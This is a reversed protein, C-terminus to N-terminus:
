EEKNIKIPLNCEETMRVRDFTFFDSESRKKTIEKRELNWSNIDKSIRTYCVESGVFSNINEFWIRLSLSLSLSLSVISKYKKKELKKPCRKVFFPFQKSMRRGYSIYKIIDLANERKNSIICLFLLLSVCFYMFSFHIFFDTGFVM